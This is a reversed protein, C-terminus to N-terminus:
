VPFTEPLTSTYLLCTELELGREKELMKLAEIFEQNM